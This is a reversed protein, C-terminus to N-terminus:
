SGCRQYEQRGAADKIELGDSSVHLAFAGNSGTGEVADGSMKSIAVTDVAFDPTQPSGIVLRRGRLEFTLYGDCASDIAWRGRLSRGLREAAPEPPGLVAKAKRVFEDGQGLILAAIALVLAACGVFIGVLVLSVDLQRSTPRPMRLRPM